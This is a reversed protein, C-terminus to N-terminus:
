CNMFGTRCLADTAPYERSIPASLLPGMLAKLRMEALQDFRLDALVAPASDLVGAIAEQGFKGTNHIGHSASGFQLPPHGITISVDRLFLADSKRTPM